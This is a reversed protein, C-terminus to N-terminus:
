HVSAPAACYGTLNWLRCSRQLKWVEDSTLSLSFCRSLLFSLFFSLSVTNFSILICVNTRTSRALISFNKKLCWIVIAVKNMNLYFFWWPCLLSCRVAGAVFARGLRRFLSSFLSVFCSVFLFNNILQSCTPLVICFCRTNPCSREWGLGRRQAARAPIRRDQGWVWTTNDVDLQEFLDYDCQGLFLELKLIQSHLGQFVHWHLGLHMTTHLTHRFKHEYSAVLVCVHVHGYVLLYNVFRGHSLWAHQVFPGHRANSPCSETSFAGCGECSLLSCMLSFFVGLGTNSSWVM